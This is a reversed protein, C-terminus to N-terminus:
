VLWRTPVVFVPECVRRLRATIIMDSLLSWGILAPVQPLVPRVACGM